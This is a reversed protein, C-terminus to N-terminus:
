ELDRGGKQAPVMNVPDLRRQVEKGECRNALGSTKPQYHANGETPAVAALTAGARRALWPTPATPDGGGAPRATHRAARHQRARLRAHRATGRMEEGMQDPSMVNIGLQPAGGADAPRALMSGMLAVLM